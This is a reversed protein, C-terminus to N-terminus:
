RMYHTFKNGEAVNSCFHRIRFSSDFFYNWPRRFNVEVGVFFSIRRFLWSSFDGPIRFFNCTICIIQLCYSFYWFHSFLTFICRLLHLNFIVLQLIFWNIKILVPRWLTQHKSEQKKIKAIEKFKSKKWFSLLYTTLIFESFTDFRYFFELLCANWTVCPEFM